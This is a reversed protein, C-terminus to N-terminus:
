SCDSVRGKRSRSLHLSNKVRRHQWGTPAIHTMIYMILFTVRIDTSFLLANTKHMKERLFYKGDSDALKDRSTRLTRDETRFGPYDCNKNNERKCVHTRSLLGEKKRHCMVNWVIWWNWVKFQLNDDEGHSNPRVSALSAPFSPIRDKIEESEQKRVYSILYESPNQPKVFEVPKIPEQSCTLSGKPEM